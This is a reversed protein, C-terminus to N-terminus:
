PMLGFQAEGESHLVFSTFCTDADAKLYVYFCASEWYLAGCDEPPCHILSKGM